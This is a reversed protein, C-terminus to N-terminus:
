TPVLPFFASIMHDNTNGIIIKYIILTYQISNYIIPKIPTRIITVLSTPKYGSAVLRIMMMMM